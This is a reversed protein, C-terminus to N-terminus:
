LCIHTWFYTLTKLQIETGPQQTPPGSVPQLLSLLLLWTLTHLAPRTVVLDPGNQEQGRQVFPGKCDGWQLKKDTQPSKRGEKGKEKKKKERNQERLRAM